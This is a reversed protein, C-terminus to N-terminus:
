GLTAYRSMEQAHWHWFCMERPNRAWEPTEIVNQCAARQELAQNMQEVARHSSSKSGSAKALLGSRQKKHAIREQSNSKTDGNKQGHDKNQVRRTATSPYPTVRSTDEKKGTCSDEKSKGTLGSYYKWTPIMLKSNRRSPAGTELEKMKLVGFMQTHEKRDSTKKALAKPAKYTQWHPISTAEDIHDADPLNLSCKRSDSQLGLVHTEVLVDPISPELPAEVPFTGPLPYATPTVFVPTELSAIAAQTHHNMEIVDSHSAVNVPTNINFINFDEVLSNRQHPMRFVMNGDFSVLSADHSTSSSSSLSASIKAPYNVLEKSWQFQKLDADTPLPFMAQQELDTFNNDPAMVSSSPLNPVLFPYPWPGVGMPLVFDMTRHGSSKLSAVSSKISKGAVNSGHRENSKAVLLELIQPGRGVKKNHQALAEVNRALSNSSFARSPSLAIDADIENIILPAQVLIEESESTLLFDRLIKIYQATSRPFIMTGSM